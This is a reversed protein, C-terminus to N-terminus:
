CSTEWLKLSFIEGLERKPGGLGIGVGLLELLVVEISFCTSGQLFPTKLSRRKNLFFFSHCSKTGQKGYEM